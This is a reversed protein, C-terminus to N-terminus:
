WWRSRGGGSGAPSAAGGEGGCRRGAPDNAVAFREGSPNLCVDLRDKSVDIGVWAATRDTKDQEQM